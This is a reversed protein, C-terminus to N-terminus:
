IALHLLSIYLLRLIIEICFVIAHCGRGFNYDDDISSYYQVALTILDCPSIYVFKQIGSKNYVYFRWALLGVATAM